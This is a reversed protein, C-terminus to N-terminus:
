ARITGVYASTVAPDTRVTAPAADAIVRGFDLVVVRDCTELVLSLDHDVLVVSTGSTAIERLTSGLAIREDHDLGAAPEDLLLLTPRSTLARALAVRKREGLSLAGALRHDDADIGVLQAARRADPLAATKAEAAVALNEAVTMDDFLDVSQFTRSIGARARRHPNLGDVRQGDLSVCGSTANVFGSIVDLLTTKGAGNPGILGIVAGAEVSLCVERLAQVDGYSVSVNDIHLVTTM